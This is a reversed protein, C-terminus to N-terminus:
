PRNWMNGPLEKALKVDLEKDPKLRNYCRYKKTDPLRNRQHLLTYHGAVRYLESLPPVKRAILRLTFQRVGIVARKL